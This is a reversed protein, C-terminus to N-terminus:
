SHAYHTRCAYIFTTTDTSKYILRDKENVRRSWMDTHNGHLPEPKGIGTFPHRSIDKLLQNVRKLSRKDNKLLWQYDEWGNKSFNNNM